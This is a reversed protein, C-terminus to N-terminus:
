IMVLSTSMDLGPEGADDYLDDSASAGGGEGGRGVEFLREAEGVVSSRESPPGWGGLLEDCPM